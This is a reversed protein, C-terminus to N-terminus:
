KGKGGKSPKSKGPKSSSSKSKKGGSKKSAPAPAPPAPAPAAPEEAEGDVAMADDQTAVAPSSMSQSRGRAQETSWEGGFSVDLEEGRELRALYGHLEEENAPEDADAGGDLQMADADPADATGSPSSADPMASDEDDNDAVAATRPGAAAPSTSGAPADIRRMREEAARFHQEEQADVVRRIIEEDSEKWTVQLESTKASNAFIMDLTGMLKTLDAVVQREETLKRLIRDFMTQLYESRPAVPAYIDLVTHTVTTLTNTFHPHTLYRHLFALTPALTEETRGQLARELGNRDLLEEILAVVVAPPQNTEFLVDLANAYEFKRLFLDYAKVEPRKSRTVQFDSATPQYGQGRVFYRYSGARYSKALADESRVDDVKVERSRLSLTGDMMGVAMHTDNPSVALSLIPSPYKLTHVVKYNAVNYVKVSHDLSGTLLRSGSHDFAMCTVTKQHNSVHHLMRGGAVVDFVKFYPGGSSVLANSGPFLLLSEVPAGHDVTMVCANARVDWLKVTHDYSGTVLLNPNDRSVIGARVYDTHEDFTAVCSNSPIDWLKVLKDDSGSLIQTKNPSFHTLQVSGTHGTFQRLISRSGMEFVSVTGDADGVALLKGDSRLHGSYADVKLREIKKAVEHTSPHYIHVNTGATAALLHPASEAFHLSKVLSSERLLTPKRYKSWYRVDPTIRDHLKPGGTRVQLRQFETTMTTSANRHAPDAAPPPTPPPGVAATATAIAVRPEGAGSGGGVVEEATTSNKLQSRLKGWVMGGMASFSASPRHSLRRPSPTPAATAIAAAAGLPDGGANAAPAAAPEEEVDSANGSGGGLASSWSWSSLSRSRGHSHLTDSSRKHEIGAAAAAASAPNVSSSVRRMAVAMWHNVAAEVVGPADADNQPSPPNNGVLAIRYTSALLTDLDASPPQQLLLLAEDFALRLLADRHELVMAVMFDPLFMGHRTAHVATDATDTSWAGTGVLLADALPDLATGSLSRRLDSAENRGRNRAAVRDAFLSDWLRLLDPVTFEQACLCTFWKFSFFAPELGKSTLHKMLPPDVRALRAGLKEMASHIGMADADMSDIFFDRYDTMIEHFLFFTDSEAHAKGDFDDDNALLYYIPFVVHNMGQIYGIGPNLKAFVYLIREVALFNKDFAETSRLFARRSPLASGPLEFVQAHFFSMSPMTRRVDKDITDLLDRDLTSEIRHEPGPVPSAPNLLPDKPPVPPPPPLPEDAAAAAASLPDLVDSAATTGSLTESAASSTPSAPASCLDDVFGRYIQRKAALLTDWKATDSPLYNLLLKWCRQRIGKTEPIGRYCLRRLREFDIVGSKPHLVHEFLAVREKYTAM